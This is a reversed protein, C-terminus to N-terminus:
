VRPRSREALAKITESARKAEAEIRARQEQIKQLTTSRSLLRALARHAVYEDLPL